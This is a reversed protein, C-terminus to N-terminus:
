GFSFCFRLVRSHSVTEFGIKFVFRKREKPPMNLYNIIYIICPIMEEVCLCIKANADHRACFMCGSDAFGLDVGGMAAGVDHHGM